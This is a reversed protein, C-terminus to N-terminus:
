RIVIRAPKANYPPLMTRVTFSTGNSEITIAGNRDTRLVRSGIRQLRELVQRSPHGYTNEKGVSILAIKPQVAHCWRDSTSTKSGHHGIKLVSARVDLGRRIIDHEAEAEADGMLLLRFSGYRVMLVLSADNDSTPTWGVGPPPPSLVQLTVQKGLAIGDGRSLYEVPVSQREFASRIRQATTTLHSLRYPLRPLILAGVRIGDAIAEAGGAHDLDWHTLVAYDLRNFGRRRLYPLVIRRGTDDDRVAPGADILIVHGEPSEIVSADGQGVNLMTFRFAGSGAPRYSALWFGLLVAVIMALIFGALKAATRM